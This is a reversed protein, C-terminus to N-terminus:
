VMGNQVTSSALTNRCSRMRVACHIARESAAAPRITRMSGVWRPPRSGLRSAKNAPRDHPALTTSTLRICPLVRLWRVVSVNQCISM